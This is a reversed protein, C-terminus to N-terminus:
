YENVNGEKIAIATEEKGAAIMAEMATTETHKLVNLHIKQYTSNSMSPMNLFATMTDLQTFGQGTNITATVIATNINMITQSSVPENSIIDIKNCMNCKFVFESIFANKNEKILILNKFTCDFPKHEINQISTFFHKIDM